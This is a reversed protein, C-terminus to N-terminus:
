IYDISMPSTIQCKNEMFLILMTKMKKIKLEVFFVFNKIIKQVYESDKRNFTNKLIMLIQAKYTFKM